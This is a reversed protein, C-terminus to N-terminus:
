AKKLGIDDTIEPRSNYSKQYLITLFEQLEPCKIEYDDTILKKDKNYSKIRFPM